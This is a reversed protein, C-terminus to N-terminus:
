MSVVDNEACRLLFYNSETLQVSLASITNGYLGSFNLKM